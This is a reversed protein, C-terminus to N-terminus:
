ERQFMECCGQLYHFVHRHQSISAPTRAGYLQRQCGLALCKTVLLTQGPCMERHFDRSSQVGGTGEEWSTPAGAGMVVTESAMVGKEERHWLGQQESWGLPQLLLHSCTLAMALFHVYGKSAPFSLSISEKRSGGTSIKIKM